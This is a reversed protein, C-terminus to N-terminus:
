EYVTGQINHIIDFPAYDPASLPGIQVCIRMLPPTSVGHHKTQPLWWATDLRHARTNAWPRHVLLVARMCTIWAQADLVM